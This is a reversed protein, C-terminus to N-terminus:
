DPYIVDREGPAPGDNPPGAVCQAIRMWTRATEGEVVLATDAVNRRQTAVLCLDEAPGRISVGADPANWTWVAGSPGTLEIYPKPDPAPLGRNAFSFGMVRIAFEAVNRIRDAEPRRRRALDFVDQGYAWVEMQRANILSTGRMPTAFWPVRVDDPKAAAAECLKSLGAAWTALMEGWSLHDLESREHANMRRYNDAPRGPGVATGEAFRNRRETFVDLDTFAAIALQDILVMHGICDRVRWGNFPTEAEPDPHAQELLARLAAAEDKLDGCIQAWSM